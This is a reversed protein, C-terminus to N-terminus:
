CDTIYTLNTMAMVSRRHLLSIYFLLPITALPYIKKVPSCIIYTWDLM